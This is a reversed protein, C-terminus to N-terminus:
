KQLKQLVPQGSYRLKKSRQFCKVVTGLSGSRRESATPVTKRCRRLVLIPWSQSYSTCFFDSFLGGKQHFVALKQRLIWQLPLIIGSGGSNIGSHLMRIILFIFLFHYFHYYKKLFFITLLMNALKAEKYSLNSVGGGAGAAMGAAAATRRAAAATTV